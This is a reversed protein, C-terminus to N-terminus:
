DFTDKHDSSYVSRKGTSQELLQIVRASNLLSDLSEAPLPSNSLPLHALTQHRKLVLFYDQPTFLLRGETFGQQLSDMAGSLRKSMLLQGHILNLLVRGRITNRTQQQLSLYDKDMSEGLWFKGIMLQLNSRISAHGRRLCAQKRKQSLQLLQSAEEREM